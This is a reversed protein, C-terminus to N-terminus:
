QLSLDNGNLLHITRISFSQAFTDTVWARLCWESIAVYLLFASAHLGDSWATIQFFGSAQWSAEAQQRSNHIVRLNIDSSSSNPTGSKMVNKLGTTSWPVWATIEMLSSPKFHGRHCTDQIGVADWTSCAIWEEREHKPMVTALLANKVM